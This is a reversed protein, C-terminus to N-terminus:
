ECQCTKLWASCTFAVGHCRLWIWTCVKVLGSCLSRKTKQPIWLQFHQRWQRVVYGQKIWVQCDSMRWLSKIIFLLVWTGMLFLNNEDHKITPKVAKQERFESNTKAWNYCSAGGGFFGSKDRWGVPHKKGFAKFVMLTHKISHNGMIWDKAAKKRTQHEILKKWTKKNYLNRLYTCPFTDLAAPKFM